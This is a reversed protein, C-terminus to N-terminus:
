VGADDFILPPHLALVPRMDARRKWSVFQQDWLARMRSNRETCGLSRGQIQTAPMVARFWIPVVAPRVVRCLGRLRLRTVGQISSGEARAARLRKSLRSDRGLAIAWRCLPLRCIRYRDPCTEKWGADGRCPSLPYRLVTECPDSAPQAM